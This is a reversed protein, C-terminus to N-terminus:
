PTSLAERLIRGPMDQVKLGLLHAVTPAVDLNHVHGLQKGKGIGRGSLILAPYMRPHSPLYGHGHYPNKIPRPKTSSSSPDIVLHQDINSVIMYQGRMHPNDEYRPLGYAPYEASAIVRNIGPLSAAKKLLQDLRAADTEPRFTNNLEVHLVWKDPHLTLRDL